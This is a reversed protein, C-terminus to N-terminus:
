APSAEYGKKRKAPEQEDVGRSSEISWVLWAFSLLAVLLAGGNMDKKLLTDYLGHLIMPIALVRGLPLVYEMWDGGFKLHDANFYVGIGVAMSWMGHLAVCSVFRVVYIGPGHMGNYFDSSYMIGEAVGFGVGTALGLTCVGRWRLRTGMSLLPMAKVLEECLGVGFTFGFFSILFNSDPDSASRYSFGIFKVIYFILTLIGRGTVWVGQTFAAAFQVALLLIIGITATFLAVALIRSLDADSSPFLVIALLLFLGAALLAYLWHMWTSRSLHAGEIKGEPLATLIDNLSSDEREMVRQMRSRVEPPSEEVNLLTRVFREKTDDKETGLLSFGLPILALLLIFYLYEGVSTGAAATSTKASKPKRKKVPAAEDADRRDAATEDTEGWGASTGEDTGGWGGTGTSATEEAPPSDLKKVRRPPTKPEPASEVVEYGDDPPPEAVPVRLIEGCPCKIRKGALEDKVKLVKGCASCTLAIAM